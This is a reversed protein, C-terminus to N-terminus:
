HSLTGTIVLVVAIIVAALVLVAVARSIGYPRDPLSPNVPRQGGLRERLRGSEVQERELAERASELAGVREHLATEMEANEQVLRDRERTLRDVAQRAAHLERQVRDLESAGEPTEAGAAQALEVEARLRGLEIRLRRGDAREAELSEEAAVRRRREREVAETAAAARERLRELEQGGGTTRRRRERSAPARRGDAPASGSGRRPRGDPAGMLTVTIDPAVSLEITAAQDPEVDTAFAATWLEDDRAAWPKHDLEAVARVESGDSARTLTLTPRAFRRGRVGRWRGSVELRGPGSVAVREV